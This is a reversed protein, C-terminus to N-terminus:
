NPICVGACPQGLHFCCIGHSLELQGMEIAAISTYNAFRRVALKDLNTLAAHGAYGSIRDASSQQGRVQRVGGIGLIHLLVNAIRQAKHLFGARFCASAIILAQDICNQPFVDDLLQFFANLLDQAAHDAFLNASRTLM